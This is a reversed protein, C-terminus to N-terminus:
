KSESCGDTSPEIPAYVVMKGDRVIPTGDLIFGALEGLTVNDAKKCNATMLSGAIKLKFTFNTRERSMEARLKEMEARLEAIEKNERM